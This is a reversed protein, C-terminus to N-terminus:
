INYYLPFFRIIERHKIRGTDSPCHDHQNGVEPEKKRVSRNDRIPSKWAGKSQNRSHEGPGHFGAEKGRERRVGDGGSGVGVGMEQAAKRGKGKM